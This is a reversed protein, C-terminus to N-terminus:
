RETARSDRFEPGLSCSTSFGPPHGGTCARQLVTVLGQSKNETKGAAIDMGAWAGDQILQADRRRDEGRFARLVAVASDRARRGDGGSLVLCIGEVLGLATPVRGSRLVRGRRFVM